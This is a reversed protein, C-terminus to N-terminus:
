PIAPPFMCAMGKSMVQYGNLSFLKVRFDQDLVVGKPSEPFEHCNSLGDRTMRQLDSNANLGNRIARWIPLGSIRTALHLV